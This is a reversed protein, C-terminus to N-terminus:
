DQRPKVALPHVTFLSSEYSSCHRTGTPIAAVPTLLTTLTLAFLMLSKRRPSSLTVTMVAHDMQSRTCLAIVIIIITSPDTHIPPLLSISIQGIISSLSRTETMYPTIGLLIPLIWTSFPKASPTLFHYLTLTQTISQTTRYIHSITSIHTLTALYLLRGTTCNNTSLCIVALTIPLKRIFSFLSVLFKNEDQVPALGTLSLWWLVRVHTV